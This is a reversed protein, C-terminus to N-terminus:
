PINRLLQQLANDDESKIAKWALAKNMYASSIIVENGFNEKLLAKEILYGQIEHTPLEQCAQGRTYQQLLYLCDSHGSAKKEIMEEFTRIFDHYRLPNGDFIQVEKTPLSTINHQQVLLTTIKNTM